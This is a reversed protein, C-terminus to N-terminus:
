PVVAINAPAAPLISGRNIRLTGPVTGTISGGSIPLFPGGAVTAQLSTIENAAVAFNNRVSATTPGPTTGSIPVSPDILSAM